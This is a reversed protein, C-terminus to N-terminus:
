GVLMLKAFSQCLGSPSAKYLLLFQLISANGMPWNEPWQQVSCFQLSFKAPEWMMPKRWKKGDPEQRKTDRKTFGSAKRRVDRANLMKEKELTQREPEQTFKQSMM